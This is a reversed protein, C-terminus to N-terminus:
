QDGGTRWPGRRGGAGTSGTQRLGTVSRVATWGPRTHIAGRKFVNEPRRRRNGVFTLENHNAALGNQALIGVRGFSQQYRNFSVDIAALASTSRSRMLVRGSGTSWIGTTCARAVRITAWYFSGTETAQLAVRDSSGGGCLRDITARILRQIKDNTPGLHGRGM